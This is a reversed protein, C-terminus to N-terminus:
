SAIADDDKRDGGAADEPNDDDAQTDGDEGPLENLQDLMFRLNAPGFDHYPNEMQSMIRELMRKSHRKRREETSEFFRKKEKAVEIAITVIPLMVHPLNANEFIAKIGLDGAEYILIRANEIPVDGLTAMSWEFFPMDGSSLAQIILSSSLKDNDALYKVLEPATDVRSLAMTAREWSQQVLDKTLWPSLKHQSVIHDRLRESVMTVLREAIAVPLVQRDVMPTKVKDSDGYDDLVRDLTEESLEAGENAVLEAVADENQSDVLADAVDSSVTPRGAIAIQKAWSQTAIIAILDDDTLVESFKLMPLAVEDVDRALELAIDHPVEPCNKLNDSLAQRVQIEADRVMHRFIDLALQRETASLTKKNTDFNHAIRAATEARTVPSRDKMLRVVDAQSLSSTM